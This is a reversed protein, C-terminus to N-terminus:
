KSHVTRPPTGTRFRCTDSFRRSETLPQERSPASAADGFPRRSAGLRRRGRVPIFGEETEAKM